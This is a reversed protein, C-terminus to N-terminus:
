RPVIVRNAIEWARRSSRHRKDDPSRPGNGKVPELVEIGRRLNADTWHNGQDSVPSLIPSKMVVQQHIM